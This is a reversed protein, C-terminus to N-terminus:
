QIVVSIQSIKRRICDIRHELQRIWGPKSQRHTIPKAAKLDNLVKQSTIAAVYITSNVDWFTVTGTDEELKKLHRHGLENILVQLESNPKKRVKTIYPRDRLELNYLDTMNANWTAEVRDRTETNQVTGSLEAGAPEHPKLTVMSVVNSERIPREESSLVIARANSQQTQLDKTSGDAILQTHTSNQLSNKQTEQRSYAPFVLGKRVIRKAQENLHKASLEPIPHKKDWLTKLPNMFGPKRPESEQYFEYIRM